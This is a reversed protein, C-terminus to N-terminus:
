ILSRSVESLITKDKKVVKTIQYYAKNTIRVRDLNKVYKYKDEEHVHSLALEYSPMVSNPEYGLLVFMMDSWEIKNSKKDWEWTGIRAQTQIESLKKKLKKIQSKEDRM